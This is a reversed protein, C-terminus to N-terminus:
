RVDLEGNMGAAEHGDVSCYFTYKGPKLTVTVTSKGGQGVVPGKASVGGKIAIDHQLPSPNTMVITVKGSKASLKTTNFKLQAKDAQLSLTQGGGGGGSSSPSTAGGGSSATSSSSSSNSSGGCGALALLAAAGLISLRKM